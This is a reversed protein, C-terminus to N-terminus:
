GNYTIKGDDTITAAALAEKIAQAVYDKTAYTSAINNGNADQTAKTATGSININWTGTAGVGDKTPAYNTYNEENLFTKWDGWTGSNQSRTQLEADANTIALQSDFGGVNDWALHLIAADKMPKNSAMSSTALFYRIKGDGYQVNADAPRPTGINLAYVTTDISINGSGDFNASGRANGTLSITCPTQLKSATASNGNIGIDWTGTNKVVEKGGLLATGDGNLRLGTHPTTWSGGKFFDLQGSPIRSIGWANDYSGWMSKLPAGMYITAWKATSENLRLDENYNITNPDIVFAGTSTAGDQLVIKKQFTMTGTATDNGSVNLKEDLAAKIGSSTVPNSSNDTPTSDFTLKTQKNNLESKTAYTTTIVNGSADQTAKTATDAYVASKSTVYKLSTWATAGDGIKFFTTDTEVGLEGDILVPNKATWNAATDHRCKLHAKVTKAM